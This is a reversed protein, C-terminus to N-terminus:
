ITSWEFITIGAFVSFNGPHYGHYKSWIELNGTKRDDQPNSYYFILPYCWQFDPLGCSFITHKRNKQSWAVWVQTRISIRLLCPLIITQHFIHWSLYKLGSQKKPSVIISDESFFPLFEHELLSKEGIIGMFIGNWPHGMQHWVEVRSIFIVSKEHFSM